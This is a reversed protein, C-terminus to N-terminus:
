NPLSYRFGTMLFMIWDDNLNASPATDFKIKPEVEGKAPCEIPDGLEYFGNLSDKISSQDGAAAGTILVPLTADFAHVMPLQCRPNKGLTAFTFYSDNLADILNQYVAQTKVVADPIYIFSFSFAVFKIQSPLVNPSPWNTIANGVQSTSHAFFSYELNTNVLQLKDYYVWWDRRYENPNTGDAELFNQAKEYNNM